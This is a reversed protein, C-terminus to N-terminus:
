DVKEAKKAANQQEPFISVVKVKDTRFMAKTPKENTVLEEAGGFLACAIHIADMGESGIKCGEELATELLRPSTPITRSNLRFFTEYFEIENKRHNWTPLPLVELKVYDSTIFERNEDQIFPLALAAAYTDGQAAYILVGSDLYTLIVISAREAGERM